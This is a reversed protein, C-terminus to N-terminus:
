LNRSKKPEMSGYLDMLKSAQAAWTFEQVRSTAITAPRASTGLDAVVRRVANIDNQDVTYGFNNERVVRSMEPFDSCIVSAGANLYEFMKNPLCLYDSLSINEILSFGYDTGALFEVLENHRVPPVVHVNNATSSSAVLEERISGDGILAFHCNPGMDSFISILEPLSRGHEFAGVYIFLKVSPSLKLHERITQKGIHRSQLSEPANLIVYGRPSGFHELYWDRIADSVTIFGRVFPWCLKELAFIARNMFPSSGAKSSELEHADYIVSARFFIGVLVAIPLALADHAHVFDPRFKGAVRLVRSFLWILLFIRKIPNLRGHSIELLSSESSPAEENHKRRLWRPRALSHVKVGHIEQIREGGVYEKSIGVSEVAYGGAM